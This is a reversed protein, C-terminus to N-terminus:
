FRIVFYLASDLDQFLIITNCFGVNKVMVALATLMSVAACYYKECFTIDKKNCLLSKSDSVYICKPALKMRLTSQILESCKLKRTWPREPIDCCLLPSQRVYFCVNIWILLFTMKIIVTLLKLSLLAIHCCPTSVLLIYRQFKFVTVM